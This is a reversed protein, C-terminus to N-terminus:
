AEVEAAWAFIIEAEALEDHIVFLDIWVGERGGGRYFRLTTGSRGDELERFVGVVRHDAVSTEDARVMKGPRRASAVFIEVESEEFGERDQGKFRFADVVGHESHDDIAERIKEKLAYLWDKTASERSAREKALERDLFARAAAVNSM